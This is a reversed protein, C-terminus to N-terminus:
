KGPSHPVISNEVPLPVSQLIHLESESVAKDGVVSDRSGGAARGWGRDSAERESPWPSCSSSGQFFGRIARAVCDEGPSNGEWTSEWSTGGVGERSRCRRVRGPGSGRRASASFERLSRM